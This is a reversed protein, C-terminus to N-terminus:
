RSHYRSKMGAALHTIIVSILCARFIQVTAITPGAAKTNTDEGDYMPQPGNYPSGNQHSEGHSTGITPM